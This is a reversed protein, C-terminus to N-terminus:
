NGTRLFMDCDILDNLIFRGAKTEFIPIMHAGRILYRVMVFELNKAEELINCGEIQTRPKWSSLKFM